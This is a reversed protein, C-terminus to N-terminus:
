QSNLVNMSYFFNRYESTGNIHSNKMANFKSRDFMKLTDIDNINLWDQMPFTFGTKDRDIHSKPFKRSLLQRLLKKTKFISEKKENPVNLVYELIKPNLFPSRIELSNLMGARDARACVLDPLYYQVYYLLTKDYYNLGKLKNDFIRLDSFFDDVNIKENFLEELDEISVSSLFMTNQYEKPYKIGRLFRRIKFDFSLNKKSVPLIKLLVEMLSFTNKGLLNKAFNILKLYKFIDYGGFIEDGGDGSLVSKVRKAAIKSVMYTPVFTPAGLPEDLKKIVDSYIENFKKEDLDISFNKINLHQSLQKAKEIEDFTKGKVSVTFSEIDQDLEKSYHAILSSDIGGSLFLGIKQDTILRSKVSEKLLNDLHDLSTDFNSKKKNIFSYFEFEKSSYDKLDLEYFHSNRAKKINKYLTNPAPIFNFIFYKKLSSIDQELNINKFHKFIKLESGIVIGEKSISYYLPKEGFKDRAITIKNKVLDIIGVSFMGDIKSFVQHGWLEYGRIFVETDSNRTKFIISNQELEQRLDAANYIEGNFVIITEKNDSVFPQKGGAIDIISLRNFGVKIKSDDSFFYNTSDPGRYLISKTASILDEKNFSGIAIVFGCM